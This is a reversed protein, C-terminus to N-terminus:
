YLALIVSLFTYENTSCNEKTAAKLVRGCLIAEGQMIPSCPRASVGASCCAWGPSNKNLGIRSVPCVGANTEEMGHHLDVSRRLVPHTCLLTKLACATAFPLFQVLRSALSPSSKIALTLLKSVNIFRSCPVHRALSCGHATMPGCPHHFIHQDFASAPANVSEAAAQPLSTKAGLPANCPHVLATGRKRSRDLQRTLVFYRSNRM